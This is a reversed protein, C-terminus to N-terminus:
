REPRRKGVDKLQFQQKAQHPDHCETCKGKQAPKHGSFGTSSKDHCECCLLEINKIYQFIHRDNHDQKHCFTCDGTAVPGHVFADKGMSSHCDTTTCSQGIILTMNYSSKKESRSETAVVNICCILLCIKFFKSLIFKIISDRITLTEVMGNTTFNRKLYIRNSCICSSTQCL